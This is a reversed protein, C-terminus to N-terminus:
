NRDRLGYAEGVTGGLQDWLYNHEEVANTFNRKKWNNLMELLIDKDTFSSDSIETILADVKEDTIEIEGWIEDAVIETNAMSHLEKYIDTESRQYLSAATSPAAAKLSSEHMIDTSSVNEDATSADLSNEDAMDAGLSSEDFEQNSVIEPFILNRVPDIYIISLYAAAIFVIICTFVIWYRRPNREFRQNGKSSKNIFRKIM